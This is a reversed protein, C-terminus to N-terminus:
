LNWENRNRRKAQGSVQKYGGYFPRYRAVQPYIVAM